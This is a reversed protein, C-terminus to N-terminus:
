AVSVDAYESAYRKILEGDVRRQTNAASIEMMEIEFPGESMSNRSLHFVRTACQIADDLTYGSFDLKELETKAAQANSGIAYAQCKAVLGSPDAYFLADEGDSRASVLFECGVPRFSMYSSFYMLYYRLTDVFAEEMVEKESQQVTQKCFSTMLYKIVNYDHALGSYAMAYTRSLGAICQLASMDVLKSPSQKEVALLLGGKFKIGIATNGKGAAKKAYEIQLLNGTDTYRGSVDLNQSM